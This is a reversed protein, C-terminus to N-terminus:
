SALLCKGGAIEGRAARNIANILAAEFLVTSAGWSSDEVTKYANLSLAQWDEAQRTVVWEIARALADEDDVDVLVGNLGTEIAEEPWGTKTSVVPTRCAMAEMAPLNFGESHSATVWVDCSSYLDRIRDQVPSFVFDTKELLPLSASPRESGFSLIRLHPISRRAKALAALTVDVGKFAVNSYLFGATPVRQKARTGAFFQNKDVSNPVLDVSADGYESLMVDRLWRAIVIKHFKLLYTARAREVPLYPFVEHHQVFYVKAGKNSSLANVWEATEWWTAIVVDADPVDDDVVPRWRDLVRHDLGSGDLHSKRREAESFWSNGEIWRKIKHPFPIPKPPPSVLTVTHGRRELERAYIGIVRTGGSMNVAPLVFAIRM